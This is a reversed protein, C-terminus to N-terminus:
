RDAAQRPPQQPHPLKPSFAVAAVLLGVVVLMFAIAFRSMRLSKAQGALATQQMKTFEERQQRAFALQEKQVQLIQELLRAHEDSM